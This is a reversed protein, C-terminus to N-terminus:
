RRSLLTFCFFAIIIEHVCMCSFPDTKRPRGAEMTGATLLQVETRITMSPMFVFSNNSGGGGNPSM